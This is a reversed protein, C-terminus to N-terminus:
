KFLKVAEAQAWAAAVQDYETSEILFPNGAKVILNATMARNSSFLRAWEDNQRQVVRHQLFLAQASIFKEVVLNESGLDTFILWFLCSKLLILRWSSM